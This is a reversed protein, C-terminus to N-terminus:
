KNQSAEFEAKLQEYLKQREDKELKEADKTLTAVTVPRKGKASGVLRPAFGKLHKDVRLGYNQATVVIGKIFEQYVIDEGLAKVAEQIDNGIKLGDSVSEGDVKAKITIIGDEAVKYHNRVQEVSM